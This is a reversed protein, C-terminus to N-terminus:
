LLWPEVLQEKVHGAPVYALAPEGFAHRSQAGPEYWALGKGPAAWVYVTHVKQSAPLYVAVSREVLQRGQGAPRKLLM